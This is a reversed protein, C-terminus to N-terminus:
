DIMLLNQYSKCLLTKEHRKWGRKTYTKSCWECITKQNIKEKNNDRYEKVRQKIEEKNQEYNEKAKKNLTEKNEKYYKKDYKQQETKRNMNEKRSNLCYEDNINENILKSEEIIAQQETLNKILIIEKIKEYFNNETIKLEKIKKYLKINYFRTNKNFCDSKHNYLRKICQSKGYYYYDTDVIELKYIYYNTM